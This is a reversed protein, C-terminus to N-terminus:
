NRAFTGPLISQYYTLDTGNNLYYVNPNMMVLFADLNGDNNIDIFQNKSLIYQGPSTFTTGTSNSKMFTVAV